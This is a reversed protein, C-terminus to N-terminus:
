PSAGQPSAEQGVTKEPDDAFIKSKGWWFSNNGGALAWLHLIVKGARVQFDLAPTPKLNLGGALPHPKCLDEVPPGQLELETKNYKM